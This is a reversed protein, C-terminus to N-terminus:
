FILFLFFCEFTNAIAANSHCFWMVLYAIIEDVEGRSSFAHRMMTLPGERSATVEYAFCARDMFGKRRRDKRLGWGCCTFAQITHIKNCCTKHLLHKYEDLFKDVSLTSVNVNCLLRHCVFQVQYKVNCCVTQYVYCATFTFFLYIINVLQLLYIILLCFLLVLLFLSITLEYCV